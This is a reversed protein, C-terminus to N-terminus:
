LCRFRSLPLFSSGKFPFGFFVPLVVLFSEVLYLIFHCLFCYDVTLELMTLSEDTILKLTVTSNQYLSLRM